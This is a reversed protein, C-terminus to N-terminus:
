QWRTDQRAPQNARPPEKLAAQKGSSPQPHNVQRQHFSTRVTSTPHCPADVWINWDAQVCLGLWSEDLLHLHLSMQWTLKMPFKVDTMKTM